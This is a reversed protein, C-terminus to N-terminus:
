FRAEVPSAKGRRYLKGLQAATMQSLDNTM